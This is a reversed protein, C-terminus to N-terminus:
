VKLFIKKRYLLWTAFWCIGAFFLSYALASWAQAPIYDFIYTHFVGWISTRNGGLTFQFRGIAIAVFESFSYAFICNTGFVLPVVTWKGRWQKVDLVWYCLALAMMAIGVTLLVYSSTWLKKNIPFILGWLQGAAFCAVGMAVLRRLLKKPDARLSRIWEGVAVGFLTNCLAPITSLVGEPDRVGEYLHGMMLRRDLWAAM